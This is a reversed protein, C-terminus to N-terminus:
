INPLYNITKIKLVVGVLVATELEVNKKEIM